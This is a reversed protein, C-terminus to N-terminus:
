IALTRLCAVATQGAAGPDAKLETRERELDAAFQEQTKAQEERMERASAVFHAAAQEIGRAQAGNFTGIPIVEDLVGLAAACNVARDYESGEKLSGVGSLSLKAAARTLEPSVPEKPRGETAPNVHNTGNTPPTESCAATCAVITCLTALAVARSGRRSRSIESTTTASRRRHPNM